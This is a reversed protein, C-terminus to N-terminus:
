KLNSFSESTASKTSILCCQLAQVLIGLIQEIQNIYYDNKDILVKTNQLKLFRWIQGTTVVGLITDVEVEKQENFLRAAVMEAICQGLGGKINENKAEVLMVVPSQVYFQESSRSLIFDCFGSLGLSQNVNFDVGSFFSVKDTGLIRRVELLVPAIILESRVKETNIASVLPINEDLISALLPTPVISPTDKPFLDCGELVELSLSTKAKELTFDSYSM